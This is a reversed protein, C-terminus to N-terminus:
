QSKSPILFYVKVKFLILDFHFKAFFQLLYECAFLGQAKCDNIICVKVPLPFVRLLKPLQYVKSVTDESNGTGVAYFEGSTTM